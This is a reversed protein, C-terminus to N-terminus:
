LIRYHPLEANDMRAKSKESITTPTEIIIIKGTLLHKFAILFYNPYSETDVVLDTGAYQMIEDDSMAEWVIPERPTYPKLQVTNDILIKGDPDFNTM